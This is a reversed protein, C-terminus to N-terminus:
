PSNGEGGTDSSAGPVIAPSAATGAGEQWRGSAKLAKAVEPPLYNEDHKALVESAVFNGSENFTGQVVVGQGERFLDPLVGRYAISTSAKLDTIRFSFTAGDGLKTVSGTEVLGGLRIIRGPAPQEAAIESPSFFFVLERDFANLVLATATGLLGLSILVLYLRLTKRKM